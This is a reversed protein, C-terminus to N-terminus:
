IRDSLRFIIRQLEIITHNTRRNRNKSKNKSNGPIKTGNVNNTFPELM